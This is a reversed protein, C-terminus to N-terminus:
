LGKIIMRILPRSRKKLIVKIVKTKKIQNLDRMVRLNMLIKIAQILFSKLHKIKVLQLLLSEKPHNRGQSNKNEMLLYVNIVMDVSAKKRGTKACRM